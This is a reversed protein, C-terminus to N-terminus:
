HASALDPWFIVNENAHHKEIFAKLRSLCEKRYTVGNMASKYAMYSQSVGSTSIALWVMVKKPFKEKRQYKVEPAVNEKNETYYGRNAQVEPCLFPFNCEDDMVVATDESPKLDGM